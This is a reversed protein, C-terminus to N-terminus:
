PKPNTSAVSRSPPNSAHSAAPIGTTVDPSAAPSAQDVELDKYFVVTGIFGGDPLLAYRPIAGVRQWGLRHYLREADESATDLVLLTKGAGLAEREAARLLVEGVGRRRARRAVLMKAIEGRHPQNEPLALLVQVTGVVDGSEDEAILILREGRRSSELTQQWFEEARDLGLPHMFGLSAGGEVCDVLVEALRRADGDGVQARRVDITESM